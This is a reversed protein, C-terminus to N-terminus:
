RMNKIGPTDLLPATKQHALTANGLTEVKHPLGLASQVTSMLSVLEDQEKENFKHGSICLSLAELMDTLLMKMLRNNINKAM